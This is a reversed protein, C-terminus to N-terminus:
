CILYLSATNYCLGTYRTITSLQVAVFTSRLASKIVNHGLSFVHRCHCHYSPGPPENMHLVYCPHWLGYTHTTCLFKKHAQWAIRIFNLHLEFWEFNMHIECTNWTFQKHAECWSIQIVHNYWILKMLEEIHFECSNWVFQMYISISLHSEIEYSIWLCNM